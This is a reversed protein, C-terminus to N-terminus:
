PETAAHTFFSEFLTTQGVTGSKPDPASVRVGGLLGAAVFLLTVALWLLGVTRRRVLGAFPDVDPRADSRATRRELAAARFISTPDAPM